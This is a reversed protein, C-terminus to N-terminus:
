FLAYEKNTKRIIGNVTMVIVLGFISQLFGTAASMGVNFNVMLTRYVFTDIIDTSEYLTGNNGIINYFLDFQGRMISGLGFLLIVIFTPKLHPLTIHWIKQFVHAGDIDAAEYISEDIGMIAALYIVTYYGIQKWVHFSVIIYKWAGVNSYMDVPEMGMHKLISNLTGFDYNFINWTFAAVLVFSVFYPLFMISQTIKKYIKGKMESLIIAAIISTVSGLGIFAINYLVTNKILNYIIGNNFLFSFNEFGVFPSKFLGGNFDFRTFAMYVGVMPLYSFILFFILIPAVMIYLRYNNKIENIFINKRKM